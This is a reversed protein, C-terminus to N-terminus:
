DQGGKYPNVHVMCHKVDPFNKEIENHVREAIGHADYLSLNGDAAIEVDTYIKAGFIRTKIDDVALVGEQKMVIEEMKEVTEDTLNIEAGAIGESAVGRIDSGNKLSAWEKTLM